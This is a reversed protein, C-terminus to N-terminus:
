PMSSNGCYYEDEAWRAPNSEIYSCIQLYDDENRIIHDFSGAQWVSKGVTRSVKTKISRVVTGMTPGSAGMPGDATIVIMLHVHNPMIVYYPIKVNSYAREASRVAEDTLRGLDTLEVHPGILADPGVCVRSLIRQRNRTCMTIFYAGPQGYDYGRLRPHKRKKM